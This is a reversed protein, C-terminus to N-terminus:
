TEKSKRDDQQKEREIVKSAGDENSGLLIEHLSAILTDSEHVLDEPGYTHELHPNAKGYIQTMQQVQSLNMAQSRLKSFRTMPM